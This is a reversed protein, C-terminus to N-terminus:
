QACTGRRDVALRIRRGRLLEAVYSDALGIWLGIQRRRNMIAQKFTNVPMQM